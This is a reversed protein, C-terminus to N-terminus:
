TEQRGPVNFLVECEEEQKKEEVREALHHKQVWRMFFLLVFVLARVFCFTVLMLRLSRLTVVTSVPSHLMSLALIQSFSLSLSLSLFPSPTNISVFLPSFFSLLFSSSDPPSVFFFFVLSCDLLLWVVVLGSGVV